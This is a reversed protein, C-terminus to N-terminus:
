PAMGEGCVPCAPNKPVTVTRLRSQMLDFSWLTGPKSGVGILWKVAEAAQLAGVTGVLPGLIGGTVCDEDAGELSPWLCSLCPGGPIVPFVQGEYGVAGGFIVPIHRSVAWENILVRTSAHDLGDIVLDHGRLGDVRDASLFKTDVTISLEPALRKLAQAAVAAKSSGIDSPSFLVQRGLNHADVVDGDILTLHGVGQAALYQAAASGLGGVGVVAVRAAHLKSLREPRVEPLAVLRRVREKDTILAPGASPASM